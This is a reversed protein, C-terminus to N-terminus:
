KGLKKGLAVCAEFTPTKTHLLTIGLEKALEKMGVQVPSDNAILIGMGGINSVTRLTQHSSLSTILLIGEKDVTLVESMMDSAVIHQLDFNDYNKGVNILKADLLKVIDQFLM